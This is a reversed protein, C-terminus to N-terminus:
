HGMDGAIGEETLQYAAMAADVADRMQQILNQYDTFLPGLALADGDARGAFKGTMATSVSNSGLSAPTSLSVCLRKIQSCTDLAANYGDRLIKGAAPDISLEGSALSAQMQHLNNAVAGLSYALQENTQPQTM